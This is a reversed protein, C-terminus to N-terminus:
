VRAGAGRVQGLQDLGADGDPDATVEIGVAVGEREDGTADARDDRVLARHGERARAVLEPRRALVGLRQELMEVRRAERLAQGVVPAYQAAAASSM